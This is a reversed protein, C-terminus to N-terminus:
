VGWWWVEISSAHRNQDEPRQGTRVETIGVGPRSCVAFLFSRRMVGIIRHRGEGERKWGGARPM